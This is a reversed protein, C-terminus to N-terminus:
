HVFIYMAISLITVSLKKRAGARQHVSSGRSISDVRDATSDPTSLKSIATYYSVACHASLVHRSTQLNCYQLLYTFEIPVACVKRSPDDVRASMDGVTAIWRARRVTHLLHFVTLSETRELMSVRPLSRRAAASATGSVKGLITTTSRLFYASYQLFSSTERYVLLSILPIFYYRSKFRQLTVGSLWTHMLRVHM